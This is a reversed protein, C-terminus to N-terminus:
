RRAALALAQAGHDPAQSPAVMEDLLEFGLGVDFPAVQVPAVVTQTFAAPGWFM